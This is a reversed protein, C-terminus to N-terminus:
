ETRATTSESLEAKRKDKAAVVLDNTKDSKGWAALLEANTNASEIAKIDAKVREMREAQAAQEDASERYNSTYTFQGKRNIDRGFMRGIHDCADKIAFSKAAPLGTQVSDNLIRSMDAASAGKSTKAPAAGVGDQYKFDGTIPDKYHVRVVCVLSNFMTTVEKVEIFYEQFINQLLWEVRGIPMTNAKGDATRELWESPPTSNLFANLDDIKAFQEVKDETTLKALEFKSM